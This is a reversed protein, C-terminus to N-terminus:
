VFKKLHSSTPFFGAHQKLCIVGFKGVFHCFELIAELNNLFFLPLFCPWWRSPHNPGGQSKGGGWKVLSHIRFVCAVCHNAVLWYFTAIRGGGVWLRDGMDVHKRTDARGARGTGRTDATLQFPLVCKAFTNGKEGKAGPFGPFGRGPLGVLYLYSTGNIEGLVASSCSCCLAIDVRQVSVM